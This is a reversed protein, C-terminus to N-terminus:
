PLSKSKSAAHARRGSTAREHAIILVGLLLLALLVYM